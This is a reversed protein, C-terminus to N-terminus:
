PHQNRDQKQADTAPANAPPPSPPAPKPANAPPHAQPQPTGTPHPREPSQQSGNARAAREQAERARMEQDRQWAPNASLGPQVGPSSGPFGPHQGFAAPANAEPHPTFRNWREDPPRPAPPAGPLLSPRVFPESPRAPRNVPISRQAPPHWVHADQSFFNPRQWGQGDRTFRGVWLAHRRWDFGYTLWVGSRFPPGFSVFPPGGLDASELFVVSPDYRPVYIVDPEGPLIEILGDEDV